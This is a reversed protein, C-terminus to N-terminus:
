HIRLSLLLISLFLNCVDRIYWDPQQGGFAQLLSQGIDPIFGSIYVLKVVGGKQGTQQRQRQSLGDLASSVPLGSWSHSIIIVEHGQDCERQVISRLANIDPQLDKVTSAQQISPFTITHSTYDPLREILPNFATPPYWAGPCFILTPKSM